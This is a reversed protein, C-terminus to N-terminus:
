PADRPPRAESLPRSSGPKGTALTHGHGPVTGPPFIEPPPEDTSPAFLAAWDPPLRRALLAGQEPGLANAFARCVVEGLEVAVGPTVGESVAIRAFLASPKPASHRALRHLAAAFPPPLVEALAVADPATLREGLTELTADLATGATRRDSLGTRWVVEDLIQERDVRM